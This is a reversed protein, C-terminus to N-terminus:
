ESYIKLRDDSVYSPEIVLLPNVKDLMCDKVCQVITALKYEQTGASIM